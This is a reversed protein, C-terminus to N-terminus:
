DTVIIDEGAPQRKEPVLVLAIDGSRKEKGRLIPAYLLTDGESLHNITRFPLPQNAAQVRLDLGGLPAAAAPNLQAGGAPAGTQGQILGAALIGITITRLDM